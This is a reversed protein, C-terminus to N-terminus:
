NSYMDVHPDGWFNRLSGMATNAAAVRKTIEYGDCLSYSVWTSLYKFHHCFTVYGYAVKVSDKQIYLVERLEFHWAKQIYIFALKLIETFIAYSLTDMNKHMFVYCLDDQKKCLKQIKTYLNLPYKTKYTSLITLIRVLYSLIGSMMKRLQGEVTAM